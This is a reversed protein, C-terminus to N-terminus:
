SATARQHALDSILKQLQTVNIRSAPDPVKERGKIRLDNTPVPNVVSNLALLAKALPPQLPVSKPNLPSTVKLQLLHFLTANTLSLEFLDSVPILHQLVVLKSTFLDPKLQALKAKLREIMMKNEELEEQSLELKVGDEPSSKKLSQILKTKDQISPHLVEFLAAYLPELDKLYDKELEDVVFATFEALFVEESDLQNALQTILGASVGKKRAQERAVEEFLAKLRRKQTALDAMADALISKGREEVQTKFKEIDAEFVQASDEQKMRRLKKVKRDMERLKKEAQKKLEVVRNQALAKDGLVREKFRELLLKRSHRQADSCLMMQNLLFMMGYYRFSKDVHPREWEPEGEEAPAPAPEPAEAAETAGEEGTENPVPVAAPPLPRIDFLYLKLFEGWESNLEPVRDIRFTLAHRQIMALNYSWSEYIAKAGDIRIKPPDADRKKVYEQYPAGFAKKTRDTEFSGLFINKNEIAKAIAPRFIDSLYRIARKNPTSFVLLAFYKFLFQETAEYILHYLYLTKVQDDFSEAGFADDFTDQEQTADKSLSAKGFKFPVFNEVFKNLDNKLPELAAAVEQYESNEEIKRLYFCLKNADWNTPDAYFCVVKFMLKAVLGESHRPTAVGKERIMKANLLFKIPTWQIIFADLNPPLSVVEGEGATEPLDPIGTKVGGKSKVDAASAKFTSWFAKRATKSTFRLASQTAKMQEALSAEGLLHFSKETSKIKKFYIWKAGLMREASLKLLSMRDAPSQRSLPKKKKLFDIM